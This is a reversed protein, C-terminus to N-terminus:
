VYEAAEVVVLCGGWAGSLVGRNGGLGLRGNRTREIVTLVCCPWLFFAAGTGYSVANDGGFWGIALVKDGDAFGMKAVAHRICRHAKVALSFGPIFCSYPKSQM